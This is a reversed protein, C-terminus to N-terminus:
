YTFNNVNGEDDLWTIGVVYDDFYYYRLNHMCDEMLETQEPLFIYICDAKPVEREVSEYQERVGSINRAFYFGNTTLKYRLAIEAPRIYNAINPSDPYSICLQKFERFALLEKWFEDNSYKYVVTKSFSKHKEYLISSMDFIQIGLCVVLILSGISFYCKNKVHLKFDYIKKICYITILYYTPWIFRGTSRFTSWIKEVLVPIPIKFLIKDSFTVTPSAALVVCIFAIAVFIVGLFNINKVGNKLVKTFLVIVCIVFLCIVGLGLYAFGEQQFGSYYQKLRPLVRSFGQSDFLANLNFSYFGFGDADSAASSTFGGLIWANLVAAILYSIMPAM